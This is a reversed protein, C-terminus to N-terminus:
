QTQWLLWTGDSNQATQVQSTSTEEVTEGGADGAITIEAEVTAFAQVTPQQPNEERRVVEARELSYSLQEPGGLADQSLPGMPADPHILSNAQALDGSDLADLYSEVAGAPGERGSDRLFVFWGGAAAAAVVGGALVERRGIGSEATGRQQSTDAGELQHQREQQPPQRNHRRPQRSGRRDRRQQREGQRPRDRPRTTEAPEGTRGRRLATGCYGCYDADDRPQEGCNPCEVM